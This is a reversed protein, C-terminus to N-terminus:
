KKSLNSLAMSIKKQTKESFWNEILVNFDSDNNYILTKKLRCFPDGADIFFNALKKANELALKIAKNKGIFPNSIYENILGKKFAQRPTYLKCQTAVEFLNNRNISHTIIELITKPLDLSLAMENLGMRHTGFVGYRYDCALALLCGGAIAHGSVISFVPGPFQRIKNLLREFTEFIESVEEKNGKILHKLNLGASFTKNNGIIIVAKCLDYNLENVLKNILSVTLLNPGSEGLQIIKIKKELNTKM